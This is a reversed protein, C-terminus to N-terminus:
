SSGVGPFTQGSVVTTLLSHSSWCPLCCRQLPQPSLSLCGQPEEKLRLASALGFLDTERGLREGEKRSKITLHPSPSESDSLVVLCSFGPIGLAWPWSGTVGSM